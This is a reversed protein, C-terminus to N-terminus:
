AGDGRVVVGRQGGIRGVDGCRCGGGLDGAVGVGLPSWRTTRQSLSPLMLVDMALQIGGSLFSARGDAEARSVFFSDCPIRWAWSMRPLYSSAVNGLIVLAALRSPGLVAGESYRLLM